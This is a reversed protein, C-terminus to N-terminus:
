ERGEEAARDREEIERRKHQVAAETSRIAVIFDLYRGSQDGIGGAELLHGDQYLPYYTDLYRDLEVSLAPTEEQARLLTRLPCETLKVGTILNETWLQTTPPGDHGLIMRM